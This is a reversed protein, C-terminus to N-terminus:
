STMATSSELKWSCQDCESAGRAEVADLLSRAIERIRPEMDAVMRPTFARNVLNRMQTHQPPDSSIISRVPTGMLTAGGGMAASSFIAPTKLVHTVDDYCAITYIGTPNTTARVPAHERLRAYAPYPDSRFQPDFPNFEATQTDTTM